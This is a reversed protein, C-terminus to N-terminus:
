TSRRPVGCGVVRLPGDRFSYSGRPGEVEPTPSLDTDQRKRLRRVRGGGTAEAGSGPVGRGDTGCGGLSWWSNRDPAGLSGMRRSPGGTEPTRLARCRPDSGPSRALPLGLVEVVESRPCRRHVHLCTTSTPVLTSSCSHGVGDGTRIASEQARGGGGQTGRLFGGRQLERVWRFCWLDWRKLRTSPWASLCTFLEVDQEGTEGPGVYRTWSLRTTRGEGSSRWGSGM